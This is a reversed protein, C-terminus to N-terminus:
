YLLIFKMIILSHWALISIIHFNDTALDLELYVGLLLPFVGRFSYYFPWSGMGGDMDKTVLM